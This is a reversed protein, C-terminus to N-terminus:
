HDLPQVRARRRSDERHDHRDNGGAGAARDPPWFGHLGLRSQGAAFVAAAGESKRIRRHHGLGANRDADATAGLAWVGPRNMEVFADVREGPGMAIVDVAQPNAVPNGDLAFVQFKHGTMAIKRNSTACANLFHFLVRQGAKVQIPPGGGMLKDNISVVRYVAEYGNAGRPMREPKEPKPANPDEDEDDEDENALFPEWDRLALFHEQDYKGPDKGSDIYFFGYQGTYTSRHLDAGAMTHSHYWRSGAPGPTFQYRYRGHPPVMPTGEEEAGDVESPILLGHWHVLEPTDTDNIVDITVPKGERLRILPGPSTGNYGITSLSRYPALEVLVTGIKVTFDAPTSPAGSNQAQGQQMPPMQQAHLLNGVGLGGAFAGGIKIFNRRDM